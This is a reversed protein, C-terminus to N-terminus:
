VRAESIATANESGDETTLIEKGAFIGIISVIGSGTSTTRITETSNPLTLTGNGEVTLHAHTQNILIENVDRVHEQYVPQPSLEIDSFSSTTSTANNSGSETTAVASSAAISSAAMALTFIVTAATTIILYNNNNKYSDHM